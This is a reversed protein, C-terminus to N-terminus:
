RKQEMWLKARVLFSHYSMMAAIIFGGTGDLFGLRFFYNQIFKAPPKFWEFVNVRCNKKLFVRANLSSFNNISEMFEGLTLHSYHLLPNKFEETKGKIKWAEDVEREFFGKGKKALRLLRIKATEGYKLKKGLFFDDRKFYFGNVTQDKLNDLKTRIEERLEKSIREDADLFLIWYSAAKAIGFNRQTAFDGNLNRQYVKAGMGQAIEATRDKSYDDIVIIEDCWKLTELCAAINKEENKTLVIASIM